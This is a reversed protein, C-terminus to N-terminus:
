RVILARLSLREDSPVLFELIEDLATEYGEAHDPYGSYTPENVARMEEIREILESRCVFIETM